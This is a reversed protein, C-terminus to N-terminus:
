DEAKFCMALSSNDLDLFSFFWSYANGIALSTLNLILLSVHCFQTNRQTHCQGTNQCKCHSM